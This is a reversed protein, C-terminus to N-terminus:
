ITCGIVSGNSDTRNKFFTGDCSWGAISDYRLKKSPSFGVPWSASVIFQPPFNDPAVQFTYTWYQTNALGKIGNIASGSCQSPDGPICIFALRDMVGIRDAAVFIQGAEICAAQTTYGPVAAPGGKYFGAAIVILVWTM